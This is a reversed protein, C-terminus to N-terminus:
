VPSMGSGSGGGFEELNGWGLVEARKFFYFTGVIFNSAGAQVPFFQGIIM